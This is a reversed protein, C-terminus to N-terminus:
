AQLRGRAHVDVVDRNGTSSSAEEVMSMKSVESLEVMSMKSVECLEFQDTTAM